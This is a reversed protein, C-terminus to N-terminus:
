MNRLPKPRAKGRQHFPHKGGTNQCCMRSNFHLSARSKDTSGCPISQRYSRSVCSPLTKSPLEKQPIMRILINILIKQLSQGLCLLMNTTPLVDQHNTFDCEQLQEEVYSIDYYYLIQHSGQTEVLPSGEPRSPHAM